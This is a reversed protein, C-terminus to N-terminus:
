FKVICKGTTDILRWHGKYKVAAVDEAFDAAESYIDTTILKGAKNIYSYEEDAFRNEKLKAVAIGNDSFPGLYPYICPILEEGKTNILGYNRAVMDHCSYVPRKEDIIGVIAVGNSFVNAENWQPAIVLNGSKNMYGYKGNGVISILGDVFSCDDSFRDIYSDSNRRNLIENGQRNLCVLNSGDIFCVVSDSFSPLDYTRKGLNIICKGEHNILKVMNNKKVAAMGQSFSGANKYRCRIVIKAKENIFGYKGNKKVLARNEAFSEADEFLPKIVMTGARNIYGWRGDLMVAALGNKFPKAAEYNCRIVEKGTKDIFGWYGFSDTVQALAQSFSYIHGYHGPITPLRIIAGTTDIHQMMGHYRVLAIGNQFVQASEFITPIVEKGKLNIYGYHANRRWFEREKCVPLYKPIISDNYNFSDEICGYKHRNIINGFTDILYQYGELDTVTTLGNLVKSHCYKYECRVIEKGAQNVLGEKENQVVRAFGNCFEYVNDYVVATIPRGSTNIFGKKGNQEVIAFSDKFNYVQDYICPTVLTGSKDIFGWKGNSEVMAYGEKFYSVDAFKAQCLVDGKCNIFQFGSDTKGIAEGHYFPYVKSYKFDTHQKGLTDIFGWKGTCNSAPLLSENFKYGIESYIFPTILNNDDDAVAWKEGQMAKNFRGGLGTLSDYMCPIRQRGQWDYYGYKGQSDVLIFAGNGMDWNKIKNYRPPVIARGASDYIGKKGNAWVLYFDNNISVINDFIPPLLTKNNADRIGMKGNIRYAQNEFLTLGLFGLSDDDIAMENWTDAIVTDSGPVQQAHCSFCLTLFIIIFASRLM